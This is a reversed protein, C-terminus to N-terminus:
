RKCNFHQINKKKSRSILIMNKPDLPIQGSLYITNEFKIAQSYAGIASPAKETHIYEKKM